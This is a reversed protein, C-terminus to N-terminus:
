YQRIPLAAAANSQDFVGDNAWIRPPLKKGSRLDRLAQVARAGILPSCEVTCNLDGAVMAEFAEEIGDMGIIIVDKGPRLGAEKVAQAAGLAMQDNHAFLVQINKDEKLFAAAVQKGEDSDFNGPQSQTIKWNPHIDSIKRFGKGREISPPSDATGSIEAIDITKTGDDMNMKKLYGALWSGAKEGEMVFDSGMFTMRLAQDDLAVDRDIMLVPIGVKKAEQLVPGYDTEVLPTILIADVKRSIFARIAKIQNEQKRQAESYILTFSPDDLFATQISITEATRWDGESGFQSFGVVWHRGAAFATMSCITMIMALIRFRGRSDM